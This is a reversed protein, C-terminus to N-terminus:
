YGHIVPNELTGDVKLSITSGKRNLTKGTKKEWNRIWKRVGMSIPNINIEMQHLLIEPHTEDQQLSFDGNINIKLFPTHLILKLDGM